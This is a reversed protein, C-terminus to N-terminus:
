LHAVSGCVNDSILFREIALNALGERFWPAPKHLWELSEVTRTKAAIVSSLVKLSTPTCPENEVTSDLFTMTDLPHPF